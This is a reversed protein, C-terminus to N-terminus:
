LGLHLYLLAGEARRPTLATPRTGEKRLPTRGRAHFFSSFCCSPHGISDILIPFHPNSRVEVQFSASLLSHFRVLKVSSLEDALTLDGETMKKLSDQFDRLQDLTDKEMEAFEEPTFSDKEEKLDTLQQLLRSLQDQVNQKLKDTEKTKNGLPVKGSMVELVVSIKPLFLELTPAGKHQLILPMYLNMSPYQLTVSCAIHKSLSRRLAGLFSCAVAFLEAKLGVLGINEGLLLAM